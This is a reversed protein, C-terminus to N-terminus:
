TPTRETNTLSPVDTITLSGDEITAIVSGVEPPEPPQPLRLTVSGGLRRVLLGIVAVLVRPQQKDLLVRNM